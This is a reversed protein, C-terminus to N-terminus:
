TEVAKKNKNNKNNKPEMSGEEARCSMARLDSSRRSPPWRRNWIGVDIPILSYGRMQRHGTGEVHDNLQRVIMEGQIESLSFPLVLPGLTTAHSDAVEYSSLATRARRVNNTLRQHATWGRELMERPARGSGDGHHQIGRDFAYSHRGPANLASENRGGGKFPFFGDPSWFLM